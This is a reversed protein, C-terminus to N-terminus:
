LASGQSAPRTYFHLGPPLGHYRFVWTHPANQPSRAVVSSTIIRTTAMALASLVGQAHASSRIRSLM